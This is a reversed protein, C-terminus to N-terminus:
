DSERIINKLGGKGFNGQGQNLSSKIIKVCNQYM